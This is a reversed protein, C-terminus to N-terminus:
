KADTPDIPRLIAGHEQLLVEAPIGLERFLKRVMTLSLERKGNLVESVKGKSGFIPVLDKQKLNAQEM